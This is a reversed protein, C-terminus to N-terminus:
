VIQFVIWILLQVDQREDTILKIMKIINHTDYTANYRLIIQTQDGATSFFSHRDLRGGRRNGHWNRM